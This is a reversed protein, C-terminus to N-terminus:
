RSGISRGIIMEYFLQDALAEAVGIRPPDVWEVTKSSSEFYVTVDIHKKSIVNVLYEGHFTVGDVTVSIPKRM